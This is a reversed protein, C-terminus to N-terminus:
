KFRWGASVAASISDFMVIQPSSDPSDLAEEVGDPDVMYITVRPPLHELVQTTVMSGLVTPGSQLPRRVRTYGEDDM